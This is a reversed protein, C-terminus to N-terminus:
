CDKQKPTLIVGGTDLTQMVVLHQMILLLKLNKQINYVTNRANTLWKKGGGRGEKSNPCMNQNILKNCGLLIFM